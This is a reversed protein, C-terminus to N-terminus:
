PNKPRPQRKRWLIKLTLRTTRSLFCGRTNFENFEKCFVELINGTEKIIMSFDTTTNEIAPLNKHSELHTLDINKVVSIDALTVDSETDAPIEQNRFGMPLTLNLILNGGELSKQTTLEPAARSNKTLEPTVHAAGASAPPSPSDGVVSLATPSFTPDNDQFTVLRFVQCYPPPDM